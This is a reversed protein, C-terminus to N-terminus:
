GRSGRRSKPWPLGKGKGKIMLYDRKDPSRCFVRFVLKCQWGSQLWHRPSASMLLLVYRASMVFINRFNMSNLTQM